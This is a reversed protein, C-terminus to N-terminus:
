NKSPNWDRSQAVFSAILRTSWFLMVAGARADAMMREFGDRRHNKKYASDGEDKYINTLQWGEQQIVKRGLDEQLRSNVLRAV